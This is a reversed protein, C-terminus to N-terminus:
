WVAPKKWDPSGVIPKRRIGMLQGNMLIGAALRTLVRPDDLDDAGLRERRGYIFQMRQKARDLAGLLGNIGDGPYGYIRHIGWDALRQLLFDAVTETM